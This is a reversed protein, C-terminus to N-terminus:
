RKKPSKTGKKGTSPNVNGKSSYNNNKKGDPNTKRHPAVQKGDKKSHGRVSHSGGPATKSGFSLASEATSHRGVHSGSKAQADGILLMGTLIVCALAPSKTTLM